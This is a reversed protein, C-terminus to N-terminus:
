LLREQKEELEHEHRLVLKIQAYEKADLLGAKYMNDIEIAALEIDWLRKGVHIYIDYKKLLNLVDLFTQM